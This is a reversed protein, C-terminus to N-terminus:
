WGRRCPPSRTPAATEVSITPVSETAPAEQPGAARSRLATQSAPGSDPDSRNAESGAATMSRRPV